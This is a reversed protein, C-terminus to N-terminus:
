SQKRVPVAQRLEELLALWPGEPFLEAVRERNADLAGTAWCAGERRGQSWSLLEEAAAALDPGIRVSHFDQGYVDTFADFATVASPIGAVAALAPGLGVSEVDPRNPTFLVAGGTERALRLLDVEDLRLTGTADRHTGLPVGNLFRIDAATGTEAVAALVEESYEPDEGLDGFVLLAPAPEGRRHAAERLAALLRVSIEVGKVRFVRVPVLVVPRDPTLDQQALFERHVDTLGGEPVRPLVNPVYVPDLGTGYSRADVQLAPSVVAWRHSPHTGPLPVFENPAHPYVREDGEHVAYTGYLDHDWFLLGGAHADYHWAAARHLGLTAPVADSLTMNIAVVWDPRHKALWKGFYETYPGTLAEIREHLSAREAKTLSDAHVIAKRIAVLEEAFEPGEVPVETSIDLWEPARENAPGQPFFAPKDPRWSYGLEAPVPLEAEEGLLDVVNRFVTLLGSVPLGDGSVLAIKM